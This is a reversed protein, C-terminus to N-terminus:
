PGQNVNFIQKRERDKLLRLTLLQPDRLFQRLTVM